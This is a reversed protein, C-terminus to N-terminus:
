RQQPTLASLRVNM